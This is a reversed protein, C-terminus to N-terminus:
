WEVDVEREEEGGMADVVELKMRRIIICHHIQWCVSFPSGFAAAARADEGRLLFNSTATASRM